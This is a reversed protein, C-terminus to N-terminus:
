SEPEAILEDDSADYRVRDDPVRDGDVVVDVEVPADDCVASWAPCVIAPEGDWDDLSVEIADATVRASFTHWTETERDHYDFSADTEGDAAAFVRLRTPRTGADPVSRGGPGAPVLTGVRWFAPLEERPSSRVLTTPGAHREGNWLDIWEGEPLRVRLPEDPETDPALLMAPGVLHELGRGLTPDDPFATVLPRLVPMGTRAATAALSWYYPLLRYRLRAYRRVTETADFAWPERATRGHFRPNSLALTGWQAWRRYCDPSPEGAYGGIDCSWYGFGAAAMGLGARVSAAFGADTPEADGGWHIPYRQSGAWAARSFLVPTADFAGAVCDAYLTPYLNHVARGSRGSSTVTDAPLYEGFDTKFAAVGDDLLRRHHSRWWEVAAESTVDLVGARTDAKSPRRLLATGGAGDGVLYGAERATEFLPSRTPVYPYEWLSVRFERDRLDSTLGALDPFAEPDPQLDFADLDMWEPDLNLVDGPVGAERLRDAVARVEDASEYANRSWWLGLTWAPLRPPRGTLATYRRLADAPEPGRFVVLSLSDSETEVSVAGPASAGFDFTTDAATDCFVGYGRDSLYFPVPAYTARGASGKAQRVRATLRSGRRDEDGFFGGCGFFREDAPLDFAAHTRTVALPWDDRREETFGTPPVVSEGRTDRVTPRTALLRRGMTEDRVAIRATEPDVAVALGDTTARITEERTVTPQTDTRVADYDAEVPSRDTATEPDPRITLRVADASLFEVTVPVKERAPAHSAPEEGRGFADTAAPGPLRRVTCALQLRDGSASAERVGDLAIRQM